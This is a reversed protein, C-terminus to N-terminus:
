PLSRATRRTAPPREAATILDHALHVVHARAAHGGRSAGLKTCARSLYTKVTNVGLFLERGIEANTLGRAAGRLCALEQDTLADGLRAARNNHTM